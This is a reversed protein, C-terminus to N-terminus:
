FNWDRRWTFWDKLKIQQQQSRHLQQWQEVLGLEPLGRLDQIKIKSQMAMAIADVVVKAQEGVMSAGLIQGHQNCVIKCLGMQEVYSELVVLKARYQKAALAETMGIQALPPSTPVFTPVPIPLPSSRFLELLNTQLVRQRIFDIDRDNGCPYIHRDCHIDLHPTSEPILLRDCDLTSGNLWLKVHDHELETVATVQTRTYIEIGEVELQAQLTRATTVDIDPLIHSRDTILKIPIGVLNLLQAIVCSLSDDGLIVMSQPPKELNFLQNVTLFHQDTLGFIQRPSPVQSTAIAFARSSIQKPTYNRFKDAHHEDVTLIQAGRRQSLFKVEGWIVDVGLSQLTELSEDSCIGKLILNIQKKLLTFQSLPPSACHKNALQKFLYSASVSQGIKTVDYLNGFLNDLNRNGEGIWAVRAGSQAAFGVLKHAHAGMGIVVLDYDVSM